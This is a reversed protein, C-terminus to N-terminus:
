VRAKIAAQQMQEFLATEAEKDYSEHLRVRKQGRRIILRYITLTAMEKGMQNSHSPSPNQETRCSLSFDTEGDNAFVHEKWSRSFILKRVRIHEREVDVVTKGFLPHLAGLVMATLWGVPWIIAMGVALVIQVMDQTEAIHYRAMWVFLGSAVPSSLGMLLSLWIVVGPASDRHTITFKM